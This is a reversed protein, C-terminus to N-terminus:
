SSRVEVQRPGRKAAELKPLTIHLSGHKYHARVKEAEVECPLEFTREFRGYTSEGHRLQGDGTPEERKEGKLTLRQGELVVEIEKEHLGPLEAEVRFELDTESLAIRPFFVGAGSEARSFWPALEFGRWLEDFLRDM